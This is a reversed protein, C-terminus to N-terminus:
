PLSIDLQEASIRQALESGRLQQGRAALAAEVADRAANVSSGVAAREAAPVQQMGRLLRTLQGKKGLVEVRVQQLEPTSQAAAIKALAADQVASIEELLSM